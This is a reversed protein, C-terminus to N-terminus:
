SKQRLNQDGASIKQHTNEHNNTEYISNWIIFPCIEKFNTQTIPLSKTIIDQKM